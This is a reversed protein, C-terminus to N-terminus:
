RFGHGRGAGGRPSPGRKEEGRITHWLGELADAMKNRAVRLADIQHSLDSGRGTRVLATIACVLALIAIILTSIEM